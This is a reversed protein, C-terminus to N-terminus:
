FVKMLGRSTELVLGRPGLLGLGGDRSTIPLTLSATSQSKIVPSVQLQGKQIAAQLEDRTIFGTSDKDIMSFLDPPNEATEGLEGPFPGAGPFSGPGGPFAGARQQETKGGLAGEAPLAGRGGPATGLMKGADEPEPEWWPRDPLPLKDWERAHVRLTGSPAGGVTLPLGLSITGSRTASGWLSQTGMTCTGRLREGSDIVDFRMSTSARPLLLFRENWAAAAGSGQALSTEGVNERDMSVRVFAPTAPGLSTDQIVADGIVVELVPEDPEPEEPLYDPDEVLERITRFNWAYWGKTVLDGAARAPTLLVDLIYQDM